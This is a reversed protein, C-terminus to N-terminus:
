ELTIHIDGDHSWVHAQRNESLKLTLPKLTSDTDRILGFAANAADYWHLIQHAYSRFKRGDDTLSVEARSRAVLKTQMQKELENIHQSVAPQSIGLKRAAATFSGLEAVTEFVKLRFDEIM